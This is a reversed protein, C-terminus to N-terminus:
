STAQTFADFKEVLPPIDQSTKIMLDQQDRRAAIRLDSLTSAGKTLLTDLRTHIRDAEATNPPQISDFQQQVSGFDDEAQSLTVELYSDLLNGKASTQVALLATELASSAAKASLHAKGRYADTTAANGVCASLVLSLGIMVVLVVQRARSM